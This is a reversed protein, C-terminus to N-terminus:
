RAGALDACDNEEPLLPRFTVAWQKGGSSWATNANASRAAALVPAVEGGSVTVCGLELGEGM